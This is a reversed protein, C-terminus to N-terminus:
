SSRAALMGHVHEAISRLTPHDWALSPSLAIDLEDELEAVLMVASASDLGHESHPAEPDIEEPSVLLLDAIREVLFREIDRADHFTRM